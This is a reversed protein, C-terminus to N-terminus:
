CDKVRIKFCEDKIRGGDTSVTVRVEYSNGSVGGSLWVKVVMGNIQTSDVTLGDDAIADVMTIVDEDALWKEFDIDYDLQEGVTKQFVGLM